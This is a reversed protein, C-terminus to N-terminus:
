PLGPTSGTQWPQRGLLQDEMVEDDIKVYVEM